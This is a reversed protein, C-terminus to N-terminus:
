GVHEELPPPGAWPRSAYIFCQLITVLLALQAGSAAWPGLADWGAGFVLVPAVVVAILLGECMQLWAAASAGHADETSTRAAAALVHCLLALFALGPVNVAWGIAPEEEVFADGAPFWVAASAVLAIAGLAALVPWQPALGPVRRLGPLALLAIAWGVPDPFWDVATGQTTLAVWVMGLGVAQLPKM